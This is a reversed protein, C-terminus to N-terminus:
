FSHTQSDAKEDETSPTKVSWVYWLWARHLNFAFRHLLKLASGKRDSM